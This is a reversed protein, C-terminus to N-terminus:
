RRNFEKVNKKMEKKLYTMEGHEYDIDIVALLKGDSDEQIEEFNGFQEIFSNLEKAKNNETPENSSIWFTLHRENDEEFVNKKIDEIKLM